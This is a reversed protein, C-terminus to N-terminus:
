SRAERRAYIALTLASVGLMVAMALIAPLALLRGLTMLQLELMPSLEGIRAPLNMCGLLVLAGLLLLTAALWASSINLWGKRGRIALLLLMAVLAAGLMLLPLRTLWTVLLPVHVQRLVLPVALSVLSLRVPLVTEQISTGIVYAIDDRATVRQLADPVTAQFGADECIDLELDLMNPFPPELEPQDGLLGMWWSTMAQNYTRLSDRTVHKLATEPAFGYEQALQEITTQVRRLQAGIVQQNLAVHEHLSESTMLLAALASICAGALCLTLFLALVYGLACRLARQLKM